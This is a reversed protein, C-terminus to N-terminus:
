AHIPHLQYTPSKFEAAADWASQRSPFPPSSEKGENYSITYAIDESAYDLVDALADRLKYASPTDLGRQCLREQMTQFQREMLEIYDLATHTSLLRLVSFSVVQAGPHSMDCTYNFIDSLDKLPEESEEM